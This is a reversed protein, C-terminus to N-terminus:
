GLDISSLAGLNVSSSHFNILPLESNYTRDDGAARRSVGRTSSIVSEVGVGNAEAQVRVRGQIGVAFRVRVVVETSVGTRYPLLVANMDSVFPVQLPQTVTLRNPRPWPPVFLQDALRNRYSCYRPTESLQQSVDILLVHQGVIDRQDHGLLHAFM